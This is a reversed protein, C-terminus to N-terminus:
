FVIRAGKLPAQAAIAALAEQGSSAEVVIHGDQRYVLGAVDTVSIGSELCGM